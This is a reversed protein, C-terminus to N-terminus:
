SARWNAPNKVSRNTSTREPARRIFDSETGSTYLLESHDDDNEIKYATIEEPKIAGFVLIERSEGSGGLNDADLLCRETSLEIKYITSNTRKSGGWTPAFAQALEPNFTTSLLPEESKSTHRDILDNLYQSGGSEIRARAEDLERLTKGDVYRSLMGSSELGRLDGRFVVLKEGPNGAHYKEPIQEYNLSIRDPKLSFIDGENVRRELLELM